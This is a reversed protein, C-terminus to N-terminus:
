FAVIKSFKHIRYVAWLLNCNNNSSVVDENGGVANEFFGIESKM